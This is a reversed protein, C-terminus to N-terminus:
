KFIKAMEEKLSSKTGVIYERHKLCHPNLQHLIAIAGLTDFLGVEFYL